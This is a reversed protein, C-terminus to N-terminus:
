EVVETITGPFHRLLMHARQWTAADSVDVLPEKPKHKNHNFTRSPPIRGAAVPKSIVATKQVTVTRSETIKQVQAEQVSVSASDRPTAIVEVVQATFQPVIYAGAGFTAELLEQWVHKTSSLLDAFFALNKPFQVTVTGTDKSYGICTGQSIVSVVLPDDLTMIQKIFRGWSVCDEDEVTDDDEEDQEEDDHESASDVAEPMAEHFAAPANDNSESTNNKSLQLLIMELLGHKATTKNFFLENTYLLELFENLRAITSRAAIAQLLGEHEIFAEPELGYKIWLLARGLECLRQWISEADYLACKYTKFARVVVEPSQHMASDFLHVIYEDDLHGLVQLVAKKTVHRSAFRVQELINLADRVSGQSERAITYLAADHSDVGEAICVNKLHGVLDEVPVGKFFLQFCRSKVTDIIKHPDTTALIFLVSAPPEELIKLFANFAAKSLMHAEDILYIKKSGMVPLYTAAEVISRVNDVGTHSAADIEIFDPHNGAVVASCSRCALCPLSVNQPRHKFESLAACNLAMAFLRAATTKGCGRQGAFLYVPFYQGKYLSNKLMRVALDQGILEDFCKSRWKRALNLNLGDM